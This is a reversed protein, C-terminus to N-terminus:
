RPKATFDIKVALHQHAMTGEGQLGGLEREGNTEKNLTFM